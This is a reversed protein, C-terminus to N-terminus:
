QSFSTTAQGQQQPPAQQGGTQAFQGAQPPAVQQFAPAPAQAGFLANIKADAPNIVVEPKSTNLYFNTYGKANVKGFIQVQQNVLANVANAGQANVDVGFFLLTKVSQDKQKMGTNNGMTILNDSLDLYTKGENGEADKFAISLETYEGNQEPYRGEIFNAGTVVVTFKGEQKCESM